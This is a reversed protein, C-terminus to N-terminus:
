FSPGPVHATPRGKENENVTLRHIYRLGNAALPMLRLGTTSRYWSIGMLLGGSKGKM